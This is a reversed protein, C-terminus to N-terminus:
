RYFLLLASELLAKSASWDKHTGYGNWDYATFDGCQRANEPYYGGGGVCYYETNCGTAKFGPCLAMVAKEHNFVRFQIYGAVIESRSNPSHYHSTQEANGYDYVVPVIPGNNKPCSGLGYTVPYQQYLRLLNGGEVSLFGTETHYRLIAANRWEKMPTLNPVHWIAM